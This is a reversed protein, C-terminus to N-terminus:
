RQEAPVMTYDYRCQRGPPRLPHQGPCKRRRVAAGRVKRGDSSRCVDCLRATAGNHCSSTWHEDVM